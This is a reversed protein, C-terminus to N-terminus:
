QLGSDEFGDSHIVPNLIQDSCCRFGLQYFRFSNGHSTVNQQCTRSEAWYRGKLNGDFGVDGSIRRRTWEEINGCLDLAGDPSVCGTNDGSPEGQYLSEVHNASDEGPVSSARAANLLQQLSTINPTSVDAPWGNLLTQNYPIWTEEDNCTGPMHNNGYPYSLEAVGGCARTWEDDFCLRKGRQTCWATAEDFTYMVLPFAGAQNPAEFTDICFDEIAVM